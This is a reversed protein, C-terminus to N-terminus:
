CLISRWTPPISWYTVTDTAEIGGKLTGNQTIAVEIKPGEIDLIRYGTVKGKAEYIL